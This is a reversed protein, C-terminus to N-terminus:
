EIDMNLQTRIKTQKTLKKKRYLSSVQTPHYYSYLSFFDGLHQPIKYILNISTNIRSNKWKMEM